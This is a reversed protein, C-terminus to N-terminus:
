QFVREDNASLSHKHWNFLFIKRAGSNNVNVTLYFLYKFRSESMHMGWHLKRCHTPTQTESDDRLKYFKKKRPLHNNTHNKNPTTILHKIM